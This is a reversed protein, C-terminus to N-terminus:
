GAEASLFEPHPQVGGARPYAIARHVAALCAGPALRWRVYSVPVVPLAARALMRYREFPLAAEFHGPYGLLDVGCAAGERYAVLDLTLGAVPYATRTKLGGAELAAAVEEAFRDRVSTARRATESAVGNGHALVHALYAGLLSRPGLTTPDISCYVRQTTRARTVSVNFVDPRELFRLAAPHSADDLALSLFVADREEGQFTHATGVMLSHRVADVASLRRGLGEALADVQARFPSLVGISHCQDAPLDRESDVLTAVDQLIRGVEDQNIGDADRTGECRRLVLASARAQGPQETMVRLRGAYFREASFAIIPPASRYHEDLFAVAEQTGTRADMVDLLSRNRYDITAVVDESLGHREALAAQREVGLFSIHRLQHPDGVVVARRARQLLPMASAVDCQSAEDIIALDFLEPEFPLVDAADSLTTLWIPFTRMLVGLDIQAFLDAQRGSTRARLARDLRQIEPRHDRLTDAVRRGHVAKLHARAHSVYAERTEEMQRVLDWVAETSGARWCCWRRRWEDALSGGPVALPHSWRIEQDARREAEAELRVLRRALADLQKQSRAVAAADPVDATHIGALLERVYDALKRRRAHHGGHMVCGPLGLDQEIKAAVVNVAHDMKSAIVVTRGRGLHELALAAITFSKGTGPPGIVLTSPHRAASELIRRQAGSLVAPVHGAPVVSPLPRGDDSSLVGRGLALRVPASYATAEAMADLETAVGRTARSRPVLLVASAPLVRLRGAALCESRAQRLEAPTALMPYDRLDQATLQPIARELLDAIEYVEHFGLDGSHVVEAIASALDIGEEEGCLADLLGDNLRRDHLDPEAFLFPPEDVFRTPYLLLPACVTAPRGAPLRSPRSATEDPATEDSAKEDPTSDDPDLEGDGPPLAGVVFLTGYLVERERLYLQAAQRVPAAEDPDLPLRSLDGTLVEERGEAFLRHEVTRGFVDWIASRRYDEAYCDRLYRLISSPM